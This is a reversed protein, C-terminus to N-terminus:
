INAGELYIKTWWEFGVEFAEEDQFGEKIEIRVGNMWSLIVDEQYINM